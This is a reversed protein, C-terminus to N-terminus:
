PCTRDAWRYRVKLGNFRNFLALGDHQLRGAVVGPAIGLEKAFATVAAESRLQPLRPAEAPPILVDRAFVDAEDEQASTVGVGEIFLAKKGHRLLHGAEHFFSFWFHDDALHRCSLLLLAKDPSVFKTAGSARCGIPARVLCVAVGHPACLAVLRPLFASPDREQTLVRLEPLADRFGTPNWAACRRAGAEVEGQRLWAAVSGAKSILTRSTRFAAVPEGYRTAWSNTDAVGFFRLCAAVQAGTTSRKEVWGRAIMDKLPLGKLWGSDKEFIRESERRALAERFQSERALWFSATSGLVSELCLATDANVPARGHLLENIHKKTFGTRRALEAASLGREQLLDAITEGPPSVWDPSFPRSETM